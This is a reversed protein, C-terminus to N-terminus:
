VLGRVLELMKQRTADDPLRGIGAQLNDVAHAPNSTETLVCNVAPHSLIFKLSFQAWSTCDFEAAWDPLEHESVIDFYEGNMFPRNVLIAVGKDQAMPLLREAAETELLSYNVQIFDVADMEMLRMMPEHFEVRHRAGGIFRAMGEEKLRRYKAPDALFDAFDYTLVLDLVDKGQAKRVRDLEEVMNRYQVTGLYTGVFLKSQLRQDQMIAAVTFRSAGLTDVYRGGFSRLIDILQRALDLDGDAFARSNGLGVIPLSEDTGPIPRSPLLPQDSAVAAGPLASALVAAGTAKLFGRRDTMALGKNM